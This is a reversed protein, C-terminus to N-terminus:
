ANTTRPLVVRAQVRCTACALDIASLQTFTNYALTKENSPMKSSRGVAYAISDPKYPISQGFWSWCWMFPINHFPAVLSSRSSSWFSQKPRIPIRPMLSLCLGAGIGTREAHCNLPSHWFVYCASHQNRLACYLLWTVWVRAKGRNRVNPYTRSTSVNEDPMRYQKLPAERSLQSPYKTLLALILIDETLHRPALLFRQFRHPHRTPQELHPM